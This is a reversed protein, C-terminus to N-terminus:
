TSARPKHELAACDDTSFHLEGHCRYAMIHHLQRATASQKQVTRNRMCHWDPLRELLAIYRRMRPMICANHVDIYLDSLHATCRETDPNRKLEAARETIERGMSLVKTYCTQPYCLTLVACSLLLLAQQCLSM